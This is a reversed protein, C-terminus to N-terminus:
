VLPSSLGHWALIGHDIGEPTTERRVLPSATGPSAAGPSAANPSPSSPRAAPVSFPELDDPGVRPPPRSTVGPATRASAPARLEPTDYTELAATVEVFGDRNRDSLILADAGLEVRIQSMAEALTPARFIRIRM